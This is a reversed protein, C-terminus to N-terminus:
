RASHGREERPEASDMGAEPGRSRSDEPIDQGLVKGHSCDLRLDFIMEVSLDNLRGIWPPTPRVKEYNPKSKKGYGKDSASM